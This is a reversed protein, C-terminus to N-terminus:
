QEALRMWSLYAAGPNKIQEILCDLCDRMKDFLKPDAISATLRPEHYIITLMDGELEVNAGAIWRGGEGEWVPLHLEISRFPERNPHNPRSVLEPSLPTYNQKLWNLLIELDM